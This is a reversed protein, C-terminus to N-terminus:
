VTAEKSSYNVVLGRNRNLQDASRARVIQINGDSSREGMNNEADIGSDLSEVQRMRHKRMKEEEFKAEQEMELQLKRERAERRSMDADLQRKIEQYSLGEGPKVLHPRGAPEGLHSLEYRARLVDSKTVEGSRQTSDSKHTAESSLSSMSSISLRSREMAYHIQGEVTEPAVIAKPQEGSTGRSRPRSRTRHRHGHHRLIDKSIMESPPLNAPVDATYDSYGSTSTADSIESMTSAREYSGVTSAKECFELSHPSERRSRLEVVPPVSQTFKPQEAKVYSRKEHMQIETVSVSPPGVARTPFETYRRDIPPTPQPTPPSDDDQFGPNVEGFVVSSEPSLQQSKVVKVNAIVNSQEAPTPKEEKLHRRAFQYNRGSLRHVSRRVFERAFGAATSSEKDNNDKLVSKRKRLKYVGFIILLVLGVGGLVGLVIGAIVGGSLGGELTAAKCENNESGYLCECTFLSINTAHPRCSTHQPCPLHSCPSECPYGHCSCVGQPSQWCSPSHCLTENICDDVFIAMVDATAANKMLTSTNEKAYLFHPPKTRQIDWGCNIASNESRPELVVFWGTLNNCDSQTELSLSLISFSHDLSSTSHISCFEPVDMTNFTTTYIRSCNFWTTLNTGESFVTWNSHNYGSGAAGFVVHAVEEVGQYFAIKVLNITRQDWNLVDRSKYTIGPQISLPNKTDPNVSRNSTWLDYVSNHGALDGTMPVKMVLQWGQCPTHGIIGVLVAYLICSTM